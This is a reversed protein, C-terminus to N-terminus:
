LVMEKASLVMLVASRTTNCNRNSNTRFIIVYGWGGAASEGGDTAKTRHELESSCGALCTCCMLLLTTCYDECVSEESQKRVFLECAKPFVSLIRAALILLFICVCSVM